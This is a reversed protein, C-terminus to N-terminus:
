AIFLIDTDVIKYLGGGALDAFIIDDNNIDTFGTTGDDTYSTDGSADFRVDGTNSDYIFTGAFNTAAQTAAGSDNTTNIQRFAGGQAVVGGGISFTAAGTLDNLDAISLEISDM